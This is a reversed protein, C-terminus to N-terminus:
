VLKEEDEEYTFTRCLAPMKPQGGTSAQASEQAQAPAAMSAPVLSLGMIM